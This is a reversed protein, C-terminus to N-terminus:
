DYIPIFAQTYYNIHTENHDYVITLVDFQAGREAFARGKGAALYRRAARELNKRKAPGVNVEPDATAASTRTKVEVFHLGSNDASIIDIECHASRWNREIISHGLSNLYLCADDEGKRGIFGRGNM